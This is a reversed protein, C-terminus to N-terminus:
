EMSDIHDPCGIFRKTSAYYIGCFEARGEGGFVDKYKTIVRLYLRPGVPIVLNNLNLSPMMEATINELDSNTLKNLPWVFLNITQEAPIPSIPREPSM